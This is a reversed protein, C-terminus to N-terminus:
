NLTSTLIEGHGFGIVKLLDVVNKWTL